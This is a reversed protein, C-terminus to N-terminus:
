NYTEAIKSVRASFSRLAGQKGTLDLTRDAKIKPCYGAILYNVIESITAKPHRARVSAIATAIDNERGAGLREGVITIQTQTEGLMSGVVSSEPLPCQLSNEPHSCSALFGFLGLRFLCTSVLRM